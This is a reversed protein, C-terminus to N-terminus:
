YNNVKNQISEKTRLHGVFVHFSDFSGFNSTFVWKTTYWLDEALVSRSSV